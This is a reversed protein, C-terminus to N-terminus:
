WFSPMGPQCATETAKPSAGIWAADRREDSTRVPWERQWVLHVGHASQDHRHAGAALGPLSGNRFHSWHVPRSALDDDVPGSRNGVPSGRLERPHAALRPARGPCGTPRAPLLWRRPKIRPASRWTTHWLTAAEDAQLQALGGLPVWRIVTGRPDFAAVEHPSAQSGSRTPQPVYNRTAAGTTTRRAPSPTPTASSDRGGAADRGTAM